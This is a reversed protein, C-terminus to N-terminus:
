QAAGVLRRLRVILAVLGAVTYAGLVVVSLLLWIVMIPAVGPGWESAGNGAPYGPEGPWHGFGLPQRSLDWWRAAFYLPVLLACGAAAMVGPIRWVSPRSGERRRDTM